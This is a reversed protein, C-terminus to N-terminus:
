SFSEYEMARTQEREGHEPKTGVFPKSALVEIQIKICGNLLM